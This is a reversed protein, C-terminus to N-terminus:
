DQIGGPQNRSGISEAWVDCHVAWPIGAAIGQRQLEDDEGLCDLNKDYNGLAMTTEVNLGYLRHGWGGPCLIVGSNKSVARDTFHDHIRLVAGVGLIEPKRAEETLISMNSDAAPRIDDDAMIISRLKVGSAHQVAWNRAYGIGRDERPLARVSVEGISWRMENCLFTHNKHEKKEVVLIVRFNQDIWRPVIKKLNNIRGRTCVYVTDTM